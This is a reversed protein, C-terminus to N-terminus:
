PGGPSPCGGSRSSTESPRVRGQVPCPVAVSRATESGGRREEACLGRWQWDQGSNQEPEARRHQGWVVPEQVVEDQAGHRRQDVQSLVSAAEYRPVHDSVQVPKTVAALGLLAKSQQSAPLSAGMGRRVTEAVRPPREWHQKEDVGHRVELCLEDSFWPVVSM